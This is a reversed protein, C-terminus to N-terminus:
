MAPNLGFMNAFAELTLERPILIPPSANIEGENRFATLIIWFFPVAMAILALTLLVVRVVAVRRRDQSITRTRTRTTTRTMTM